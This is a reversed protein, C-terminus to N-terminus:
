KSKSYNHDHMIHSVLYTKTAQRLKYNEKSLTRNRSEEIKVRAVLAYYNNQLHLFDSNIQKNKEKEIHLVSRLESEVSNAEATPISITSRRTFIKSAFKKTPGCTKTQRDFTRGSTTSQHRKSDIENKAVACKKTASNISAIRESRRKGVSFTSDHTDFVANTDQRTKVM